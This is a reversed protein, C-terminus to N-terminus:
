KGTGVRGSVLINGAGTNRNEKWWIRKSPETQARDTERSWGHWRRGSRASLHLGECSRTNYTGLIYRTRVGLGTRDLILWQWDQCKDQGGEVSEPRNLVSYPAGNIQNLTRDSRQSGFPTSDSARGIWSFACDHRAGEGGDPRM